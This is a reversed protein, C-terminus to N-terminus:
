YLKRIELVLDGSRKKMATLHQGFYGYYGGGGPPIFPGLIAAKITAVRLKINQPVNQQGFYVKKFAIKSLLSLVVRIKM